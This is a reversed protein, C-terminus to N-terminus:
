PLKYTDKLEVTKMKNFPHTCVTLYMFLLPSTPYIKTFTRSVESCVCVFMFIFVFICVCVCVCVCVICVCLYAYVYM